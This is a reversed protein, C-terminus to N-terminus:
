LGDYNVRAPRHRQHFSDNILAISSEDDLQTAVMQMKNIGLPTTHM